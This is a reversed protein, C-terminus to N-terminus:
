FRDLSKQDSIELIHLFVCIVGLITASKEELSYM